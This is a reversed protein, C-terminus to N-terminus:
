LNCLKWALTSIFTMLKRYTVCNIDIINSSLTAGLVPHHFGKYWGYWSCSKICFAQAWINLIYHQCMMHEPKHLYIPVIHMFKHENIKWHQLGVRLLSDSGACLCEVQAGNTLIKSSYLPLEQPLNNIPPPWTWHTM